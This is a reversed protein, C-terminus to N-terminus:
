LDSIVYKLGPNWSPVTCGTETWNFEKNYSSTKNGLMAYTVRGEDNGRCGFEEVVQELHRKVKCMM